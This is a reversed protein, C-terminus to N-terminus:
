QGYCIGIRPGFCFADCSLCFAGFRPRSQKRDQLHAPTPRRASNWRSWNPL